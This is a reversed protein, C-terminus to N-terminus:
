QLTGAHRNLFQALMDHHRQEDDRVRQFIQQLQPDTAKAAYHGSKEFLWQEAKLASQIALLEKQSLM